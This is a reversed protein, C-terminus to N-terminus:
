TVGGDKLRASKDMIKRYLELSLVGDPDPHTTVLMEGSDVGKVFASCNRHVVKLRATYTGNEGDLNPGSDIPGRGFKQDYSGWLVQWREPVTLPKQERLDFIEDQLAKIVPVTEDLATRLLANEAVLQIYTLAM